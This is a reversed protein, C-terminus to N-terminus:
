ELAIRVYADIKPYYNKVDEAGYKARFKEAVQQAGDADPVPETEVSYNEGDFSIGLTRNAQLNRFWNTDRGHVPMLLCERKGDDYVFWVPTSITNGSKRGKVSITIENTEKLRESLKENEPSILVQSSGSVEVEEGGKDQIQKAIWLEYTSQPADSPAKVEPSERVRQKKMWENFTDRPLEASTTEPKTASGGKRVQRAIWENYTSKAPQVSKKATRSPGKSIRKAKSRPKPRTSKKAKPRNKPL